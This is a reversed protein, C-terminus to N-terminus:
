RASPTGAGQNQLTSQQVGTVNVDVAPDVFNSFFNRVWYNPSVSDAPSDDFFHEAGAAADIQNSYGTNSFFSIDSSDVASFEGNVFFPNGSGDRPLNVTLDASELNFLSHNFSVDVGESKFVHIGRGGNFYCVNEFVLTDRPYPVLSGDDELRILPFGTSLGPEGVGAIADAIVDNFQTYRHDDIVIGNGDSIKDGGAPLTENRNSFCRNGRFYVGYRRQSDSRAIPQYSSIGSHQDPNLTANKYVVNEIAFVIDCQNFNIGGGGHDHVHCFKVSINHSEYVGIGPRTSTVDGAIELRELFIHSGRIDFQGDIRPLNKGPGYPLLRTVKTPSGELPLYDFTQPDVFRVLIEGENTFRERAIFLRDGPELGLCAHSITKWPQRFTGPGSDNGNPHVYFNASWSLGATSSLVILMFLCRISGKVLLKIPDDCFPVSFQNLLLKM